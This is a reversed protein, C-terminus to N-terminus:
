HSSTLIKEHLGKMPTKVNVVDWRTSIIKIYVNTNHWHLINHESGHEVLAQAVLVNFIRLALYVNQREFTSPNLAKLSLKYAFKVMPDCELQHLHRLANFSSEAISVPSTLEFRTIDCHDSRVKESKVCPYMMGKGTSKTMM